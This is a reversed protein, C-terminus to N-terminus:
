GDIIGRKILNKETLKVFIIIAIAHLCGVLSISFVIISLSAQKDQGTLAALAFIIQILINIFIFGLIVKISESKNFYRGNKKAFSEGILMILVILIGINIGSINEINFYNMVAGAIIIALIYFVTFRVLVGTISM